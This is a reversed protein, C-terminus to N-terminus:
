EAQSKSTKPRRGKSKQSLNFQKEFEKMAKIEDARCARAKKLASVERATLPKDAQTSAMYTSGIRYGDSDDVVHSEVAKVVGEIARQLETNEQNSIWERLAEMVLSWRGRSFGTVSVQFCEDNDVRQRNTRHIM